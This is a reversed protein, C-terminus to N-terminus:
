GIFPYLSSCDVYYLKEDPHDSLKWKFCFAEIRAGRVAERPSIHHSPWPIYTSLFAKVQGDTKKLQRWQCQWMIYHNKFKHTENILNLKYFFNTSLDEFPIGFCKKNKRKSTIPCIRPDHGHIICENFFYITSDEKCYIDPIAHGFNRECKASFVNNYVKVPNCYQIYAAYEMEEKSSQIKKPFENFVVHVDNLPDLFYFKFLNYFFSGITCFPRAFPLTKIQDIYRGREMLTKQIQDQLRECQRTFSLCANLIIEVQYITFDLLKEPFNWEEVVNELSRIFTRKETIQKPTDSFDFYLEESFQSPTLTLLQYNEELNISMPFFRKPLKLDFQDILDILSSEFYNSLDLFRLQYREFELMIIKSGRSLCKCHLGHDLFTKYILRLEENGFCILTTNYYTNQLVHSLLQEAPTKDQKNLFEILNNGIIETGKYSKGFLKPIPKKSITTTSYTQYKTLPNCSNQILNLKQHPFVFTEFSGRILTEIKLVGLNEFPKRKCSDLKLHNNCQTKKEIISDKKVLDLFSDWNLGLTLRLSNKKEYCDYCNATSEDVIQFKFFGLAPQNQDLNTKKLKCVHTEAEQPSLQSKCTMCFKEGCKHVKKSDELTKNLRKKIVKQCTSCMFSQCEHQSLCQESNAKVGCVLCNLSCVCPKCFWNKNLSNLKTSERALFRNCCQCQDQKSCKHLKHVAQSSYFVKGCYLCIQGNARQYAKFMSILSIHSQGLSNIEQFLYIQSKADDFTSPYMFSVKGHNINDFVVIQEKLVDMLKKGAEELLHPGEFSLGAQECLKRAEKIIELGAKIQKQKENSHIQTFLRYITTKYSCEFELSKNLYHGLLISILVCNSKFVNEYGEFGPPLYFFYKKKKSTCNLRFTGSPVHPNLSGKGIRDRAHRLSLVKINFGFSNNLRLSLHSTLFNYLMNLVRTTVIEPDTHISYNGTNLGHQISSDIVTVYMQHNKQPDYFDSIEKLLAILAAKFILLLSMLLPQQQNRSPQKERVKVEFLHDELYNTERIHRKQKVVLELNSEPDDYIVQGENYPHSIEGLYIRELNGEDAEIMNSSGSSSLSRKRARQLGSPGAVPENDDNGHGILM